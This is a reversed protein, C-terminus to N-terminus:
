AARRSRATLGILLLVGAVLIAVGLPAVFTYSSPLSFAGAASHMFIKGLEIFASSESLRKSLQKCQFNHWPGEMRKETLYGTVDRGMDGTGRWLEHGRYDKCRQAVWDNVFNELRDAPLTRILVAHNTRM